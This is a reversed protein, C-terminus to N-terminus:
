APPPAAVEETPVQPLDVTFESGEGPHSDVHVAGGHAEVVTRVIWLGLGLGGYNRGSVAREFRQFIRQQDTPSIGIGHDRVVLHAQGASAGVSVKIPKGAGYKLANSLLNTVVQDVRMPDWQGIAPGDHEVTLECAARVSDDAVRAVVEDVVHALDVPERDLRLRGTTIRSVDLLGDVLTNVRQLLRRIRELRPRSAQEGHLGTDPGTQRLMLQVQVLLAALPTKLEHSAMSLFDDRVRVAERAELFQLREAEARKRDTVDRIAAIVFTREGMQLSSLSIEAPFESGDRRRGTLNSGPAGMPRSHPHAAFGRRHAVHASRSREPVLLEVPKGVLEQRSYGFDREVQANVLVILGDVGALLM